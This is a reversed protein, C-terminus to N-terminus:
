FTPGETGKQFESAESRKVPVLISRSQRMRSGLAGLTSVKREFQAKEEAYMRSLARSDPKARVIGTEYKADLFARAHILFISM